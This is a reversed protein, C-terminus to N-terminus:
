FPISGLGDPVASRKIPSPRNRNRSQESPSAWGLNVRRNNLSDRDAHEATHVDSPKPLGMRALIVNHMLITPRTCGTKKDRGGGRRAYVKRGNRCRSIKYNWKWQILYAYDEDSVETQYQNRNGLYITPM